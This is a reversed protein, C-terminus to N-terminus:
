GPGNGYPPRPHTPSATTDAMVEPHFSSSHSCLGLARPDPRGPGPIPARTPDRLMRLALSWALIEDLMTTLATEHIGAANPGGAAYLDLVRRGEQSPVGGEGEPIWIMAGLFLESVRLGTQGVLRCRM